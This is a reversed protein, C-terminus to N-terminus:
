LDIVGQRALFLTKDRNLRALNTHIDATHRDIVVTVQSMRSHQHCEIHYSTVQTCTTVLNLIHAIDGIDIVLDDLSGTFIAFATVRQGLAKNGRHMLILRPQTNDRRGLLRSCSCMHCIDDRHHLGQDGLIIGICRLIAIDVIPDILKGAIAFQGITIELIHLRTSPDFHILLFFIRKIEHEPFGSFGTLYAPARWPALTTWAPMDLTRRHGLATKAIGKINM